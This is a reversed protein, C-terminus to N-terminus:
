WNIFNTNNGTKQEIMLLVELFMGGYIKKKGNRKPLYRPLPNNLRQIFINKVKYSIIMTVSDNQM